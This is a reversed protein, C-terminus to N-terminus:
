ETKRWLRKITDIRRKYPSSIAVDVGKNKLMEYVFRTDELGQATLPRNRDDIVGYMLKSMVNLALYAM